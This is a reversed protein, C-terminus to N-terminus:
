IHILSLRLGTVSDKKPAGFWHNVGDDLKEDVKLCIPAEQAQASEGAVVLLVAVVAAM